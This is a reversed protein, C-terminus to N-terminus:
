RRPLSLGALGRGKGSALSKMMKQAQKFQNLLANVDAPTTGSGAAIRHRRSGNIREPHQREWMTM